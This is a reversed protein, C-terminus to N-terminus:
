YQLIQTKIYFPEIDYYAHLNGKDNIFYKPIVCSSHIKYKDINRFCSSIRSYVNILTDKNYLLYIIRSGYKICLNNYKKLFNICNNGSDKDLFGISPMILNNNILSSCPPVYINNRLKILFTYPNIANSCNKPIFVKSYSLIPEDFYSFM